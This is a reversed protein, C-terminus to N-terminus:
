GCVECSLGHKAAEAAMIEKAPRGSIDRGTERISKGCHKACLCMGNDGIYLVSNKNEMDREKNAATTTPM